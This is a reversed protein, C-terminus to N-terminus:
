RLEAKLLDMLGEVSKVYSETVLRGDADFQESSQAVMVSSGVVVRAMHPVLCHRLMFQGTEGGPRGANASMVAVPKGKLAMGGRSLWDLANKMVGSIGKNYEPSSILVADAEAIQSRLTQVKEPLGHAEELDGDYLPLDLDGIEFAAPDFIRAAEHLLMRNTSGARLAGCLGLLRYQPM